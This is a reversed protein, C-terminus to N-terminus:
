ARSPQEKSNGRIVFVRSANESIRTSLMDFSLNMASAAKEYVERIGIAKDDTELFIRGCPIERLLGCLKGDDLLAEGFSIYFGHNILQSATEANGRYGHVIWPAMNGRRNKETILEPYARVCHILLPKSLKKAIGIQARFAQMQLDFPVKCARDLGCEGIAAAGAGKEEVLALDRELTDEYVHWPHLGVSYLDKQPPSDAPFLNIIATEELDKAPSHRHLNFYRKTLIAEQALKRKWNRM